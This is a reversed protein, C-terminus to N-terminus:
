SYSEIAIGDGFVEGVELLLPAGVVRLCWACGEREASGGVTGLSGNEWEVAAEKSSRVDGTSM